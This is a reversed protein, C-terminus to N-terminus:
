TKAVIFVTAIFMPTCIGGAKLERLYISLLSFIPCYSLEIKIKQPGAM